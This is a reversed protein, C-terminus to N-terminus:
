MSSKTSIMHPNRLYTNHLLCEEKAIKVASQSSFIGYFVSWATFLFADAMNWNRKGQKAKQLAGGEERNKEEMVKGFPILKKKNLDTAWTTITEGPMSHVDLLCKSFMSLIFVNGASWVIMLFKLFALSYTNVPIRVLNTILFALLPLIIHRGWQPFQFPQM